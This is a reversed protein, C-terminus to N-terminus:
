SGRKEVVRADYEAGVRYVMSRVIGPSVNTANMPLDYTQFAVPGWWEGCDHYMIPNVISRDESPDETLRSLVPCVRLPSRAEGCGPCIRQARSWAVLVNTATIALLVDDRTPNDM